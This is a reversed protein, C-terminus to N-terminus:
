HTCFSQVATYPFSARSLLPRCRCTAPACCLLSCWSDCTPSRHHYPRELDCVIWLSTCYKCYTEVGEKRKRKKWIKTLDFWGTDSYPSQLNSSRPILHTHGHQPLHSQRSDSWSRTHLPVVAICLLSPTLQWYGAKCQRLVCSSSKVKHGETECMLGRYCPKYNELVAWLLLVIHHTYLVMM